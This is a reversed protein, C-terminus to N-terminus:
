DFNISVVNASRREGQESTDIIYSVCIKIKEVILYRPRVRSRLSVQAVWRLVLLSLKFQLSRRNFSKAIVIFVCVNFSFM